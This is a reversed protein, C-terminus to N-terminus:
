PAPATNSPVAKVNRSGPAWRVGPHGLPKGGAPGTADAEESAEQDVAKTCVGAEGGTDPM